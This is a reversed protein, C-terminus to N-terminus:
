VGGGEPTFVFPPDFPTGLPAIQQCYLQRIEEEFTTADHAQLLIGFFDM